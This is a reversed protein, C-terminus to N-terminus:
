GPLDIEFRAGRLRRPKTLGVTGRHAEIFKKVLALGLGMGKTKSTHFPKFLNAPDSVGGGSDEVALCWRGDRDFTELMISGGTDCADIANALLNVVSRKLLERDARVSGARISTEIRLQKRSIGVELLSIVDRVLAAVDVNAPQPRLEKSYLLMNNTITDIEAVSYRIKRLLQKQKDGTLSGDLLDLYTTMAAIPNKIEHAFGLGLEGLIELRSKQAIEREREILSNKLEAISEVAKQLELRLSGSWGSEGPESGARTM